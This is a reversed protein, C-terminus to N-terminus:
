GDFSVAFLHHHYNLPLVLFISVLTKDLFRVFQYVFVIFNNVLLQNPLKAPVFFFSKFKNVLDPIKPPSRHLVFKVTQYAKNLIILKLFVILNYM